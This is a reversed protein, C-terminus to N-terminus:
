VAVWSSGEPGHAFRGAGAIHTAILLADAALADACVQQRTAQLTRADAWVPVWDAHAIELPHHYIDGICFLTQGASSLRVIQHGPTEGPTPVIAVGDGIERRGDVLELLGARWLVGLTRSELSSADGFLAQAAQWDARGLYHRANPFCPEHEADQRIVGNFHDHHVHTIVVHEISDPLIGAAALGALLGPPPQYGPNAHPSEAADYRSADVLLSTKPLAIHICQTPFLLPRAFDPPREHEPLPLWDALSFLLAGVDIVTVAAAGVQFSRLYDSM